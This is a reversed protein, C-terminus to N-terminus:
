LIIASTRPVLITRFSSPSGSAYIGAVSGCSEMTGSVFLSISQFEVGANRRGTGIEGGRMQASLDLGSTEDFTRLLLHDGADRRNAVRRRMARRLDGLRQAALADRDVFGVVFAPGPTLKGGVAIDAPQRGCGARARLLASM